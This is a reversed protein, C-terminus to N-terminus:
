TRDCEHSDVGHALDLHRGERSLGDIRLADGQKTLPDPAKWSPRHYRRRPEGRGAAMVRCRQLDRQAGTLRVGVDVVRQIATRRGCRVRAIFFRDLYRGRRDYAGSGELLTVCPAYHALTYEDDTLSGCTRYRSGM